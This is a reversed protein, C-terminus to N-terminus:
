ANRREKMLKYILSDYIAQWSAEVINYSVGV